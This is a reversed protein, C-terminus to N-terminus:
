VWVLVRAVDRGRNNRLKRGVKIDRHIAKRTNHMYELATLVGVAIWAIASEPLPARRKRMLDLTSGMDCLEM